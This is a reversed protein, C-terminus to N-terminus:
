KKFKICNEKINMEGFYMSDWTQPNYCRIWVGGRRDHFMIGELESKLKNCQSKAILVLTSLLICNM